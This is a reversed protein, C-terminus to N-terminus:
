KLLDSKTIIGVFKGKESVLVAPHFNLLPLLIESTDDADVVPFPKDIIHRARLSGLKRDLNKMITSEGISGIHSGDSFVPVQSINFGRMMKIIKEVPEDAKASIIIKTMVNKCKTVAERKKMVSIMKNVTSLRPDVKGTEVKAVHAQTVGALRAVEQQSLGAEIRMDKLMNGTIIM